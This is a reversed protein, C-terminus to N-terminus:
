KAKNKGKAAKKATKKGKKGEEVEDKDKRFGKFGGDDDDDIDYGATTGQLTSEKSFVDGVRTLNVIDNLVTEVKAVDIKTGDEVTKTGVSVVCLSNCAFFNGNYEVGNLDIQLVTEAKRDVKIRGVAGVDGKLDLKTDGSQM